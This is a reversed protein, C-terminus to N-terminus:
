PPPVRRRSTADACALSRWRPRYPAAANSAESGAATVRSTNTKRRGIPWNMEQLGQSTGAEATEWHSPVAPDHWEILPLM